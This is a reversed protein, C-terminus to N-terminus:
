PANPAPGVQNLTDDFTLNPFSALGPFPFNGASFTQTNRNFGLRFENTLTPTFTHYESITLLQNRVPTTTFFSPITVAASDTSDNKQYTYSGPIQDKDSLNIDVSNATTYTNNFTNPAFGIFGLEAGGATTD